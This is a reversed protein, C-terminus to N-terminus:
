EVKGGNGVYWEYVYLFQVPSNIRGAEKYEYNDLWERVKDLPYKSTDGYLFAVEPEFLNGKNIEKVFRETLRKKYNGAWVEPAVAGYCYIAHRKFNWGFMKYVPDLIRDIVFTELKFVAKRWHRKRDGNFRDLAALTGGSYYWNDAGRKVKFNEKYAKDRDVMRKEYPMKLPPCYKHFHVVRGMWPNYIVYKNDVIWQLVNAIWGKAEYGHTYAHYLTPLLNWVQDQSVFPSHCPDEGEEQNLMLYNSVMKDLGLQERTDHDIDDRVFFPNGEFGLHLLIGLFKDAYYAWATDSLRGLSILVDLVEVPSKRGNKRRLQLLTLLEAMNITGDGAYGKNDCIYELPVCYGSVVPNTNVFKTWYLDWLKAHKEKLDM